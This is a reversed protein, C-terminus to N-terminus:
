SLGFVGDHRDYAKGDRLAQEAQGEMKVYVYCEGVLKRKDKSLIVPVGCGCLICLFGKKKMGEPGLGFLEEGSGSSGTAATFFVRNMTSPMTSISM